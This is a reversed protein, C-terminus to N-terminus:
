RASSRTSTGRAPGQGPRARSHCARAIAITSDSHLILHEFSSGPYWNVAAETAVAEADFATQRGGLTKSGQSIVPGAGMDDPTIM